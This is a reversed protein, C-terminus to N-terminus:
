SNIENLKKSVEELKKNKQKIQYREELILEIASKLVPYMNNCENEEVQHIGESLINYIHKNGTMFSPLYNKLCKIKDKMTKSKFNEEDLNIGKKTEKYTILVIDEFIRRLYIFSAIGFGHSHLFISQNFEKSKEESLAENLIKNYKKLEPTNLDLTSPYQGIKMIKDSKNENKSELILFSFYMNHESDRSCFLKRDFVKNTLFGEYTREGMHIPTSSRNNCRFTSLKNCSPCFGDIIIEKDYLHILFNLDSEKIKKSQYLGKELLFSEIDNSKM